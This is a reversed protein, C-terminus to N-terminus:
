RFDPEQYTASFTDKDGLSSFAKNVSDGCVGVVKTKRQMAADTYRGRLDRWAETLILIYM